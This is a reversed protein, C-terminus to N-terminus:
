IAKLKYSHVQYVHSPVMMRTNTGSILETKTSGFYMLTGGFKYPLSVVGKLIAM